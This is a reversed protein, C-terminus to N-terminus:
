CGCRSIGGGAILNSFRGRRSIRCRGHFHFLLRPSRGSDEHPTVLATVASKSHHSAEDSHLLQDAEIPQISSTTKTKKRYTPLHRSRATEENGEEGKEKKRTSKGRKKKKEYKLKENM